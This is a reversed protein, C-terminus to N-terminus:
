GAFENHWRIMHDQKKSYTEVCFPDTLGLYTYVRVVPFCSAGIWSGTQVQRVAVATDVLLDQSGTEASSTPLTLALALFIVGRRM